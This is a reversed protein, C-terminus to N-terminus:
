GCLNWTWPMQTVRGKGRRHSTHRPLRSGGLGVSCALPCWFPTPHWIQAKLTTQPHIEFSSWTSLTTM